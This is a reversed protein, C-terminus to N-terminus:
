VGFSSFGKRKERNKMHVSESENDKPADSSKQKAIQVMFDQETSDGASIQSSPTQPLVLSSRKEQDQLSRTTIKLKSSQGDTLDGPHM